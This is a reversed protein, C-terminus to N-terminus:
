RHSWAHYNKADVDLVKSCFELERSFDGSEEVIARRHYWVQYNKPNDKAFSDLFSFEESFDSDVKRLCDRRYQRYITITLEVLHMETVFWVSYNTPNLQLIHQTLLVVRASYEGQQVVGRFLDMVKRDLIIMM